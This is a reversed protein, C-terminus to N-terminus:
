RRIASSRRWTIRRCGRDILYKACTRRLTHPTVGMGAVRGLEGLMDRVGSSKPPLGGKGTFVSLHDAAPCVALWAKLAM